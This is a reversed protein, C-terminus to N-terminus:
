DWDLDNEVINLDDYVKNTTIDNSNHIEILKDLTALKIIEALPSLISTVAQMGSDAVHITDMYGNKQIQTHLYRDFSMTNHVIVNIQNIM